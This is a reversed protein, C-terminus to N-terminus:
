GRFISQVVPVLWALIPAVALAPLMNGIRIDKLQLLRIGIALVLLGGTATMEAIMAETMISHIYSAALTIAGQYLFVSFISFFVGWGLAAALGLSAFGDLVSKMSLITYDGKLGDQISGLIAMPGVCFLLSSSVFGDVFNKHGSLSLLKQVRSAFSNLRDEINLYEGIISGALLAGLVILINETKLSMQIGIAVTLLGLSDFVTRQINEPLKSGMAIGLLSGASVAGVNIITGTM